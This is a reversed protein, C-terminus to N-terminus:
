GTIVSSLLISHNAGTLQRISSFLYINNQRPRSGTLLRTQIQHVELIALWSLAQTKIPILTLSVKISLVNDQEYTSYM